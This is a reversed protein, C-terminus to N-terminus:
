ITVTVTLLQVEAGPVTETNIFWVGSVGVAPLLLGNHPLTPAVRLKVADVVVVPM